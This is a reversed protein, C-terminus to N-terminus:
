PEVIEVFIIGTDKSIFSNITVSNIINTFPALFRWFGSVTNLVDSFSIVFINAHNSMLNRLVNLQASQSPM